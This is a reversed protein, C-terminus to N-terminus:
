DPNWEQSTRDVGPSASPGFVDPETQGGGSGRLADAITKGARTLDLVLSGWAAPNEVAKQGYDTRAQTLPQLNGGGVKPFLVSFVGENAVRNAVSDVGTATTKLNESAKVLAFGLAGLGLAVLIGAFVGGM